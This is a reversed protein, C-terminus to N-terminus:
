SLTVLDHSNEGMPRNNVKLLIKVVESDAWIKPGAHMHAYGVFLCVGPLIAFGRDEKRLASAVAGRRALFM